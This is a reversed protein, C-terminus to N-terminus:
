RSGFKKKCDRCLGLFRTYCRSCVHKRCNVCNNKGERQGCLECYKSKSIAKPEPETKPETEPKPEALPAQSSTRAVVTASKVRDPHTRFASAPKSTMTGADSKPWPRTDTYPPAASTGISRRAGGISPNRDLLPENTNPQPPTRDPRSPSPRPQPTPEPPQTSSTNTSTKTKTKTEASSNSSRRTRQEMRNYLGTQKLVISDIGVMTNGPVGNENRIGEKLMLEAFQSHESTFAM